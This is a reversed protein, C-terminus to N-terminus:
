KPNAFKRCLVNPLCCGAPSLVTEHNPHLAQAVHREAGAVQRAGLLEIHAQEAQASKAPFGALQEEAAPLVVQRNPLEGGPLLAIQRGRVVFHAQVM